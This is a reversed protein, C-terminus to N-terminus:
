GDTEYHIDHFCTAVCEKGNWFEAQGPFAEACTMCQLSGEKQHPHSAPCQEGYCHAYTVTEGGASVNSNTYHGCSSALVCKRMDAGNVMEDRYASEQCTRTCAWETEHIFGDRTCGTDCTRNDASIYRGLTTCNVGTVM